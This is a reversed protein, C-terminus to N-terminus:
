PQAPPRQALRELTDKAQPIDKAWEELLKRTEPTPLHELVEIARWGRVIAPAVPKDKLKDLLMELRRRMEPTPRDQLAKRLLERALVGLKELEATATERIAFEESDLERIWRTVRPLDLRPIDHGHRRLFDVVLAPAAATLSRIARFAVQGDVSALDAWLGGLQESSLASPRQGPSPGFIRWVIANKDTGVSVLKSGDPAFALQVIPGRQQPLRYREKGTATEWLRIPEHRMAAALTRCDPSFVAADVLPTRGGSIVQAAGRETSTLDQGNALCHFRVRASADVRAAIRDDESVAVLLGERGVLSHEKGTKVDRIESQCGLPDVVILFKGQPSFYLSLLNFNCKWSHLEKGTAADRLHVARDEGLWALMGGPSSLALRWAKPPAEIHDLKKGAVWDWLFFQKNQRLFLAKGDRSFALSGNDPARAKFRRAETGTSADWLRLFEDAGGTALFRGDPTFAASAIEPVEDTLPRIEKGDAVRWLRIISGGSALLKGDPSFALSVQSTRAIRRGLKRVEKGSSVELLCITDDRETTVLKGDPSFVLMPQHWSWGSPLPVTRVIRNTKTSWFVLTDGCSAGLIKGDPSFALEALNCSYETVQFRRLERGAAADWLRVSSQDDMSAMLKGDPSFALAHCRSQDGKWQGPSKGSACDWLLITGNEDSAALTRNNPAFAIADGANGRGHSRIDFSRVEKGSTIDVLQIRVGGEVSRLAALHKGDPSLTFSSYIEGQMTFERLQKGNAADWYRVTAHLFDGSISLLTKGDKLFALFFVQQGVRFRSSGVRYLADEPLPDGYRDLRPQKKQAPEAASALGVAMLGAALALTAIFRGHRVPMM